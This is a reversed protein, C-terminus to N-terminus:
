KTESSIVNIFAIYFPYILFVGILLLGLVPPPEEGRVMAPSLFLTFIVFYPIWLLTIIFRLKAKSLYRSTILYFLISTVIIIMLILIGVRINATKVSWNTIRAIRYINGMLQIQAFLALAYIASLINLKLFIRLIKELIM